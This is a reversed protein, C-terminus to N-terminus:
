LCLRQYGGSPAPGVWCLWRTLELRDGVAPNTTEDQLGGITRTVQRAGSLDRWMGGSSYSHQYGGGVHAIQGLTETKQPQSVGVPDEPCGRWSM